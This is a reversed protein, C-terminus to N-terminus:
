ITYSKILQSVLELFSEEVRNLEKGFHSFIQSAQERSLRKNGINFELEDLKRQDRPEINWKVFESIMKNLENQVHQCFDDILDAGNPGLCGAELRYIVNLKRNEPLQKIFSEM